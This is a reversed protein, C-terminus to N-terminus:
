ISRSIYQEVQISSVNHLLTGRVPTSVYKAIPHSRLSALRGVSARMVGVVARCSVEAVQVGVCPRLRTVWASNGCQEVARRGVAASGRANAARRRCLHRAFAYSDAPSRVAFPINAGRRQRYVRAGFKFVVGFMLNYVNPM